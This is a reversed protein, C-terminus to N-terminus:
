RNRLGLDSFLAKGRPPLDRTGKGYLETVSTCYYGFLGRWLDDGRPLPRQLSPDFRLREKFDLPLEPSVVFLKLGSDRMADAIVENIHEDRFGYGIVVLNRERERLVEEFLSLHWELLPESRIIDSKGHGIVTMDRGDQSVWGYSGHLKIYVFRESGKSWFTKKEQEVRPKNPLPVPFVTDLRGTFWNDCRLGPLRLVFDSPTYFREIFLDQNLTFFFGRETQETGAFRSIFFQCVQSAATLHQTQQRCIIEHLQKYARRIAETLAQKEELEHTASTMVDDYLTEYNLEDLMRERLKPRQRIEPQSLIVAWMESALYGGFTHTFGAGTLLVTKAPAFWREPRSM